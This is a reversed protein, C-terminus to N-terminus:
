LNKIERYLVSYFSVFGELFSRISETIIKMIASKLNISGLVVSLLYNKFLEHM